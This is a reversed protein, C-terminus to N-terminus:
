KLLYDLLLERNEETKFINNHGGNVPLLIKPESAAEYLAEAHHYPIIEDQRSHIILLPVPSVRAVSDLPRYSNDITLSFPWQLWWTLWSTSLVDRTVQRYDSFAEVSVLADIHSQYQSHAVAHIALSGGLSHGLVILRENEPLQEISYRIMSEADAITADLDVTGTSQGYGRYDFLYVDFGKEKLWYVNAFHTSINEGNGHFYLITGQILQEAFLKWGHLIINDTTQLYVDEYKVEAAEPTMVHQQM